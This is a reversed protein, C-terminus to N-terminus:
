PHGAGHRRHNAPAQAPAQPGWGQPRGGGRGPGGPGGPPGRRLVGGSPREPFRPAEPRAPGGPGGGVPRMARPGPKRPDFHLLRVGARRAVQPRGLAAGSPPGLAGHGRSHGTPRGRGLGDGPLPPQRLLHPRRRFFHGSGEAARRRLDPCRQFRGRGGRSRWLSVAGPGGGPPLLGVSPGAGAPGPRGRARGGAEARGVGDPPVCPARGPREHPAGPAAPGHSRSGAPRGQAGGRRRLRRAAADAGVGPREFRRAVQRPHSRPGNRLGPHGPPALGGGSRDLGEGPPLGGGQASQGASPM